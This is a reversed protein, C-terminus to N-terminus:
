AAIDSRGMLDISYACGFCKCWFRMRVTLRITRAAALARRFSTLATGAAIAEIQVVDLMHKAYGFVGPQVAGGGM